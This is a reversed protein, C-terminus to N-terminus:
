SYKPLPRSISMVGQTLEPLYLRTRQVYQTGGINQELVHLTRGDRSVREIVSTHHPYEQFSYGQAWRREFRVNEYQIIDGARVDLKWPNKHNRVVSRSQIFQRGNVVSYVCVPTGWRRDFDVLAGIARLGLVALESCQGNGLKHGLYARCFKLLQANLNTKPPIASKKSTARSPATRVPVVGDEGLIFVNNNLPVLSAAATGRKPTATPKKDAHALIPAAAFSGVITAGYLLSAVRNATSRFKLRSSLASSNFHLHRM